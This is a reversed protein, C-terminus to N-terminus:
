GLKGTYKELAAWLEDGFTAHWQQYYGSSRLKDRFEAQDVDNFVLGQTTLEQKLRENEAATSTRQQLAYVDLNRSVVTKLDDPLSNWAASGFLCWYGDWMHNTIACYKQVEYLKATSILALPTEQGDVVRTQLAQYVDQFPLSTPSAGLSKFNSVWMASVPVRIKFGELDKVTRIPKATSTIQRFGNAWIRDMVVFNAAVIQKRLMTGLDGDLAAYVMADDKFAFGLGYISAKPILASLVNIGSLLLCELAGSRLQSFMAPDGGLVNNAYVKLEIRGNSERLIADAAQHLYVNLPAAEPIDTGVKFSFEPAAYARGIAFSAAAVTGRLMTRRTIKSTM